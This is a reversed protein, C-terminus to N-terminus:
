PVEGDTDTGGKHLGRLEKYLRSVRAEDNQTNCIDEGM